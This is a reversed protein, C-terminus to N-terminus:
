GTGDCQMAHIKTTRVRIHDGEQLDNVHLDRKRGSKSREVILQRCWGAGTSRTTTTIMWYMDHRRGAPRGAPKAISNAVGMMSKATGEGSSGSWGCDECGIIESRIKRRVGLLTVTKRTLAILRSSRLLWLPELLSPM